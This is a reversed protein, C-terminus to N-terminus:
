LEVHLLTIYQVSCRGRFLINETFIIISFDTLQQKSRESEVNKIHEMMKLQDYESTVELFLILIQIVNFNARNWFFPPRITVQDLQRESIKLKLFRLIKNRHFM